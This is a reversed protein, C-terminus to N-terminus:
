CHFTWKERLSTLTLLMPVVFLQCSSLSVPLSDCIFSKEIEVAESIIEQVREPELPNQLLRCAWIISLHLKSTRYVPLM